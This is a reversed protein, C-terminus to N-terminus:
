QNFNEIEIQENPMPIKWEFKTWFFQRILEMREEFEMKNQAASSGPIKYVEGTDEDILEKCFINAKNWDHVQEKTYVEGWREKFCGRQYQVVIYWYYKNQENSRKARYQSVEIVVKKFGCGKIYDALGQAVMRRIKGDEIVSIFQEKV